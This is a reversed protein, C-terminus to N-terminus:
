TRILAEFGQSYFIEGQDNVWMAEAQAERLLAKGEELPLLFLATSLVDGLGSDPCVVSVSRWYASPYLTDPDIIHHYRKGDVWYARQYDGSTIVCGQSINLTHLLKETDEPDQIGVVWSAGQSKPGTACVNGGVSLLLGSPLKECVQEVAWGKAVAGVDLQLLPDAFSVTSAEPDLILDTIDTHLAAEELASLEPLQAQSPDEYGDSRAEHWLSLVTGMAINVRGGTLDYYTKCDQLLSLIESGVTVPGSGARDNVTKLNTLGDYENYIDFLRHYELLQDHAEQAVAQFADETDAYGVVTTVTDFLDLFTATFRKQERSSLRCGTLLLALILLPSILRKM